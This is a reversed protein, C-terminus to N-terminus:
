TFDEPSIEEVLEVLGPFNPQISSEFIRKIKYYNGSVLRVQRKAICGAICVHLRDTYITEYRSVRLVLEEANSMHDGALSVDINSKPWHNPPFRSERDTRMLLGEKMSPEPLHNFISDEIQTLYFAMDHCFVSNPNKEKSEFEDRRFFMGKGDFSLAFTSPLVAYQDTFRSILKCTDRGFSYADCWAGGGGYLFFYKRKNALFPALQYLVRNYEVNIERHPLDFDSLFKKTSYRILGDGLNGPNPIYILERGASAERIRSAMQDFLELM